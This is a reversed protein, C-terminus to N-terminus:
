RWVEIEPQLILGFKDKVRQKVMRMLGLVDAASAKNKNLIFNAHRESIFAGGAHKGKLGCLDILMGASNNKPNKFICGANPSTLDQTKRRSALFRNINKKIEAASGKKLKLLASLIIYGSLSSKRYSFEIEKRSLTKIEGRKSMVQADVVLDGISRGWCGANMALAGGLTGPIGTLFEAGQLSKSKAFRILEGLMVGSGARIFEKERSINKFYPSNLRLVLGKVGKDSILLNSGAGLTYAPIKNKGALKILLSLEAADIPESFFQASGGVRFTNKDKLPHNVRVKLEKPWNM